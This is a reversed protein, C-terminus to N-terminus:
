KKLAGRQDIALAAIVGEKTSLRNMAAKQSENRNSENFNRRKTWALSDVAKVKEANVFRNDARIFIDISSATRSISWRVYRSRVRFSVHEHHAKETM